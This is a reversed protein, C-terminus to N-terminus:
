KGSPSTYWSDFDSDATYTFSRHSASLATPRNEVTPQAGTPAITASAHVPEGPAGVNQNGVGIAANGGSLSHQQAVRGYVDEGPAMPQRLYDWRGSHWNFAFPGSRVTYPIPAYVWRGTGWDLIFPDYGSKPQMPAPTPYRATDRPYVPGVREQAFASSACIIAVGILALCVRSFM